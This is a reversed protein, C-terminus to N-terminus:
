PLSIAATVASIIIVFLVGCEFLWALVTLVMWATKWGRKVQSTWVLAGCVLLAMLPFLCFLAIVFGEPLAALHWRDAIMLALFYGAPSLLAALWLSISAWVPLTRLYRVVSARVPWHSTFQPSPM